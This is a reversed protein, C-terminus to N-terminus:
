GRYKIKMKKALQIRDLDDKDKKHRFEYQPDALSKKKDKESESLETYTIGNFKTTKLKRSPKTFDAIELDDDTEKKMDRGKHKVKYTGPHMAPKHFYYDAGAQENLTKTLKKASKQPKKSIIDYDQTPRALFGIHKKIAQAGYIINKDQKVQKLITKKRGQYTAVEQLPSRFKPTPFGKPKPAKPLRFNSKPRKFFM